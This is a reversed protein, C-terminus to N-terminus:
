LFNKTMEVELENGKQDKLLFMLKESKIIMEKIIEDDKIGNVSLITMGAKIGSKHAAGEEFVYNIKLDNHLFGFYKEDKKLGNIKKIAAEISEKEFRKRQLKFRGEESEFSLRATLDTKKRHILFGDIKGMMFEEIVLRYSKTNTIIRTSMGDEVSSNYRLSKILSVGNLWCEGPEAMNSIALIQSRNFEAVDKKIGDNSSLICKDILKELSQFKKSKLDISDMFLEIYDFYLKNRVEWLDEHYDYYSSGEKHSNIIYVIDGTKKVRQIYDEYGKGQDEYPAESKYMVIQWNVETFYHYEITRYDRVDKKFYYM